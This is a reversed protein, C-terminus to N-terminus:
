FKLRNKECNPKETIKKESKRSKILKKTIKSVGTM